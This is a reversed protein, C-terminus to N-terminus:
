APIESQSSHSTQIHVRSVQVGLDTMMLIQLYNPENHSIMCCGRLGMKIVDVVATYFHVIHNGSDGGELIWFGGPVWM